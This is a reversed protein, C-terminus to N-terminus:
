PTPNSPPSKLSFDPLALFRVVPQHWLAEDSPSDLELRFERVDSRNVGQMLDIFDRHSEIFPRALFGSASQTSILRFYQERGDTMVVILRPQYAHYLFANIRGFTTPKLDVEMWLALGNAPPVAIREGFAPSVEVILAGPRAAAIPHSLTPRRQLLAQDPSNDVVAYRRAIELLALSDEQGPHRKDIAKLRLAVFEPADDSRYFAANKELLVSTYATYSQIIPRPRYNLRNLLLLGQEFTFLDISSRGVKSVLAPDASSRAASDLAANFRATWADLHTLQYPFRTIRRWATLPGHAALLPSTLIVGTICAIISLDHLVPRAPAPLEMTLFVGFFLCFYFFGFVHEDARTFGQKWAIFWQTVAFLIVATRLGRSRDSRAIAVTLLLAQAIVWVAIAAIHGSPEVAMAWSYGRSIELSLRVYEPLDSLRQGAALWFLLFLLSYGLLLSLALRWRKEWLHLACSIGIACAAQMCFVFKFHSFLGLWVLAVLRKWWPVDAPLLWALGLLAVAVSAANDFFPAGAVLLLLLLWRRPGAYQAALLVLTCALLLKGGIEWLFKMGLAGPEYGSLSLFGLPGCTSAIESGFHRKQLHADVLVSHWSELGTVIPGPLHVSALWLALTLPVLLFSKAGSFAPLFGAAPPHM